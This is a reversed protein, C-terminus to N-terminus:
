SCSDNRCLFLNQLRFATKLNSMVAQLLVLESATGTVQRCIDGDEVTIRRGRTKNEDRLFDDLKRKV